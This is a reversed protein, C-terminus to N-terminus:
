LGNATKRAQLADALKAKRSDYRASFVDNDTIFEACADRKACNAVLGEDAGVDKQLLEMQKPLDAEGIKENKVFSVLDKQFERYEGALPVGRAYADPNGFLAKTAEADPRNEVAATASAGVAVVSAGGNQALLQAAMGTAFYQALGGSAEAATDASASFRAGFSALVSYSDQASGNVAVLSCPHVAYKGGTVAIQTTLNCPELRNLNSSGAPTSAVNAVLPLIVAEQRKYGVVITPVQATDTGVNIGFSTNTGFLMVNSHRTAQVCGALLTPLAILAALKGYRERHM